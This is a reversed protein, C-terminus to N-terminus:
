RVDSTTTKDYRRPVEDGGTVGTRCQRRVQQPRTDKSRWSCDELGLPQGGRAPAVPSPPTFLTALHPFITVRHPSYRRRAHFISGVDACCRPDGSLDRTWPRAHSVTFAQGDIPFGMSAGRAPEWRIARSPGDFTAKSPGKSARRLGDLERRFHLSSPSQTPASSPALVGHIRSEVPPPTSVAPM